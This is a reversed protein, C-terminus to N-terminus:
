DLIVVPTATGAHGWAEVAGPPMVPLTLEFLYEADTWTLNICGQSQRSGFYDHWYTGHVAYGGDKYYQTFPVNPLDYPHTPNQVNNSSMRDGIFKGFTVYTGAPTAVGALGLAVYTTFVAKGNQVFTLSSASRDVVIWSGNPSGGEPATTNPRPDPLRRVVTSPIRGGAYRGGDIRYWLPNGDIPEGQEEALVKVYEGGEFVGLVPSQTSPAARVHAQQTIVGWWGKPAEAATPLEWWSAWDNTAWEITGLPVYGATTAWWVNGDGELGHSVGMVRLLDGKVATRMIGSAVYPKAYVSVSPVSVQATWPTYLEAVDSAPMFGVPIQAWTSGDAGRTEALVVVIADRGLPGVPPSSRDPQSYVVTHDVIVHAQYPPGWRDAHAVGGSLLLWLALALPAAALCRWSLSRSFSTARLFNRM